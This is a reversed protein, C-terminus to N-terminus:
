KKSQELSQSPKKPKAEDESSEEEEVEEEEEDKKEKSSSKDGNAKEDPETFVMSDAISAQPIEQMPLRPAPAMGRRGASIRAEAILAGTGIEVSNTKSLMPVTGTAHDNRQHVNICRDINRFLRAKRNSKEFIGFEMAKALLSKLLTNIEGMQKSMHEFRRKVDIDKTDVEFADYERKLDRVEDSQNKAEKKKKALLLAGTPLNQGKSELYKLHKLRVLKQFLGGAQEELSRKLEAKCIIGYAIEEDSSLLLQTTVNGVFLSVNVIGTVCACFTIIRGLRTKPSNDGYGVITM